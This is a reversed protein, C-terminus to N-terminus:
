YKYVYPWSRGVLVINYFTYINVGKIKSLYRDCTFSVGDKTNNFM